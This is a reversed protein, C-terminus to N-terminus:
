LEDGGLKDSKQQPWFIVGIPLGCLFCAAPFTQLYRLFGIDQVHALIDLVIVALVVPMLVLPRPRAGDRPWFFHGGLMGFVLPLTFSRLAYYLLVESITDGRAPDLFPFFDYATWIVATVILLITTIWRWNM